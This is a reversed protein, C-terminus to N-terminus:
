VWGIQRIPKPTLQKSPQRSQTSAALKRRVEGMGHNSAFCVFMKHIVTISQEQQSDVYTVM